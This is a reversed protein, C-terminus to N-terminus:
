TELFSEIDEIPVADASGGQAYDALAEKHSSDRLVALTEKLSENEEVLAKKSKLLDLANM